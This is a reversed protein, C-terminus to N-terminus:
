LFATLVAGDDVAPGAANAGGESWAIVWVGNGFSM